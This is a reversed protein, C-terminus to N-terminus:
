FKGLGRGVLLLLFGIFINGLFYLLFEPWRAETILKFAEYGFSSFTTLGGLFGVLIMERYPSTIFNKDIAIVSLYGILFMGTLNAILTGMPFFPFFKAMFRSILFRLVSGIGGAIFVYLFSM